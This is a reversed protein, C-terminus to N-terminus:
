CYVYKSIEVCQPSPMMTVTLGSRLCDRFYVFRYLSWARALRKAGVCIEFKRKDVVACLEEKTVALGRANSMRTDEVDGVGGGEISHVDQTRKQLM